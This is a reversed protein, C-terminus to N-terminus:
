RRGRSGGPEHGPDSPQPLRGAVGRDTGARCRRPTRLQRVRRPQSDHRVVRRDDGGAIARHASDVRVGEVRLVAAVCQRDVTVPARLSGCRGVAWQGRRRGAAVVEDQRDRRPRAAHRASALRAAAVCRRDGAGSRRIREVSPLHARKRDLSKLPPFEAELGDACVQWVHEPTSLDKLHHIGLDVVGIDPCENHADDSLLLQGGHGTAMIRATRNVASGFYNGDRVNATGVHVAMRAKIEIPAPWQEDALTRQVELAASVADLATPFVAAFSDGATAFVSGNWRGISDVMLQDHRAVAHHMLEPEVEWQRTSGELDTFLFAVRGLPLQRGATSSASDM